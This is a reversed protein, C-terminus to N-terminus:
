KCLLGGDIVYNLYGVLLPGRNWPYSNLSANGSWVAVFFNERLVNAVMRAARIYSSMHETANHLVADHGHNAVLVCGLTV